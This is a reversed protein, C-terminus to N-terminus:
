YHRHQDRQFKGPQLINQRIADHASVFTRKSAGPKDHCYKVGQDHAKKIEKKFGQSIIDHPNELIDVQEFNGREQAQQLRDRTSSNCPLLLLLM